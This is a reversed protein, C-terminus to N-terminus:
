NNLVADLDAQILPRRIDILAETVNENNCNSLMANIIELETCNAEKASKVIELKLQSKNM